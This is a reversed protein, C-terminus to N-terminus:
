LTFSRISCILLLRGSPTTASAKISRPFSTSLAIPVTVLFKNSITLAVGSTYSGVFGNVSCDAVVSSTAAGGFTKWTSNTADYYYYGAQTINVTKSTPLPVASTAFILTGNQDVGYHTDAAKIQSGTLRPAIFGEAQSGDTTKATIDLTAKPTTNNIGVRGTQAYTQLSFCVLVFLIKYLKKKNM